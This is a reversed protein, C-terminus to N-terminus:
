AKRLRLVLVVPSQPANPIDLRPEIVQEIDLGASRAARHYDAYLHAYQEVAYTKGDPATFTRQNGNLYLFPHFDSILAHGDRKLVRSIESFSPALRPLHGLALGCLVIDISAGRLPIAETTSLATYASTNARLMAMSNDLGVVQQAGRELALRGYRGTGCALDLVIRGNLEPMADLMAREEAQMLPNHAHPPYSAAWKAYAEISSLTKLPRNPLWRRLRAIM